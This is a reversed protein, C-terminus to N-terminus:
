LCGILLVALVLKHTMHWRVLSILSYQLDFTM